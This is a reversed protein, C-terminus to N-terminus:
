PYSSLYIYPTLQMTINKKKIIRRGGFDVSKGEVVSKRDWQHNNTIGHRYIQDIAESFTEVGIVSSELCTQQIVVEMCELQWGGDQCNALM